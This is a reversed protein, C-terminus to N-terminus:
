LSLIIIIRRQGYGVFSVALRRARPHFRCCWTVTPSSSSFIPAVVSMTLWILRCGGLVPCLQSGAHRLFFRSLVSFLSARLQPVPNLMPLFLFLIRFYTCTFIYRPKTLFSRPRDGRLDSHLPLTFVGLANFSSATLWPWLMSGLPVMITRGSRRAAQPLDTRM